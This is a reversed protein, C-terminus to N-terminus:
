CGALNKLDASVSNTTPQRLACPQGVQVRAKERSRHHQGSEAHDFGFHSNEGALAAHVFQDPVADGGVDDAPPPAIAALGVSTAPPPVIAALGVFTAPPASAALLVLVELNSWDELLIHDAPHLYSCMLVLQDLFSRMMM